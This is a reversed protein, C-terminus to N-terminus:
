EITVEANHDLNTEVYFAPYYGIENHQCNYWIFYNICQGFTYHSVANKYEAPFITCGPNFPYGPRLKVPCFYIPQNNEWRKRAQAKTIRDFRTARDTITYRNM